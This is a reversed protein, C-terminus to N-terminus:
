IIYLNEATEALKKAVYEDVSHERRRAHYEGNAVDYKRRAIDAATQKERWLQGLSHATHGLKDIEENTM